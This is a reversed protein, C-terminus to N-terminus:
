SPQDPVGQIASYFLVHLSDTAQTLSTTFIQHIDGTDRDRDPVYLRTASRKQLVAWMGFAMDKPDRAQRSYLAYILNDTAYPYQGIRRMSNSGVIKSYLKLHMTIALLVIILVTGAIAVAKAIGLTLGILVGLPPSISVISLIGLGFTMASSAVGVNRLFQEYAKRHSGASPALLDCVTHLEARELAVHMSLALMERFAANDDVVAIRTRTHGLLCPSRRMGIRPEFCTSDRSLDVCAQDM